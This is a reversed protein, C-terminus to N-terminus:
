RAFARAWSQKACAADNSRRRILLSFRYAVYDDGRIEIHPQLPAALQADRAQRWDDMAWALSSAAEAAFDNFEPDDFVAVLQIVDGVVGPIMHDIIAHLPRAAEEDLMLDAPRAGLGVQSM